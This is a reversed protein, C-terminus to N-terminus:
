GSRLREQHAGRGGLQQRQLLSLCASLSLEAGWGGRGAQAVTVVDLDPLPGPSQHALEVCDNIERQFPANLSRRGQEKYAKKQNDVVTVAYFYNLLPIVLM